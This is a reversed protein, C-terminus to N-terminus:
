EELLNFTNINYYNKGKRVNERYQLPTIHMVRKFYNFFCIYNNYGVMKAIKVVPRNTEALLKLVKNMRIGLQYAKLGVGVTKVFVHRFRSYSYGINEAMIEFNITENYRAKIYRKINECISIAEKSFNKRNAHYIYNVIYLLEILSGKLSEDTKNGEDIFIKGMDNIIEYIREIQPFFAKNRIIITENVDFYNSDYVCCRVSTETTTREYHEINRPVIALINESYAFEEDGITVVGTGGKYVIIEPYYHKHPLVNDGKRHTYSVVEDIVYYM